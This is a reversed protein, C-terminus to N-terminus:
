GSRLRPGAVEIVAITELSSAHFPSAVIKYLVVLM